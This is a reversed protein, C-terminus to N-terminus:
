DCKMEHETADYNEFGVPGYGAVVNVSPSDAAPAFGFWKEYLGALTGDKKLCEIVADVRNRFEANEPKVAFGFAGGMNITQPVKLGPQQSALYAMTGTEALAAFARGSQVAQATDPVNLYRQIDFGYKEANQQAWTDAIAGNNVAVVKGKLAELNPLEASEKTLFGLSTELYGETFAMSKSREATITVPAIIVDFHGAFLGAFIGSWEQVVLEFDRGLKAAVAKGLEINFGQVDGSVTRFAFPPITPDAAARLPGENQAFASGVPMAALAVGIAMNRLKSLNSM